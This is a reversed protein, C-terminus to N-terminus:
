KRNQMRQQEWDALDLPPPIIEADPKPHIKAADSPCGAVCLGCGICRRTDVVFVGNQESVAGVQCRHGCLGCATCREADIAAYYNAQAVSNEIGWDTIGRLIGCCCGCCNCIYGVDGFFLSKNRVNSMTHVLGIEEAEELVALAEDRSIMDPTPPLQVSHYVLCTRLPFDCKRGLQDQQKRCVCDSVRFTRANLLIERVDDYPLVWESKVASQAPVVRHIAPDPRMIGAAGGDAMYHEILHALEYDMNDLQMEYIGIIFPSLRFRPKGPRGEFWILRRQALAMLGARAQREDLGARRAIADAPELERGLHRALAAETPTFIKQLLPIEVNSPTRPFGNPLANLADALDEYIKNDISQDM